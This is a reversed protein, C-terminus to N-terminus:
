LQNTLMKSVNNDRIVFIQTLNLQQQAPPFNGVHHYSGLAILQVSTAM